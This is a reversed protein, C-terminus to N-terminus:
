NGLGLSGPTVPEPEVPATDIPAVAALRQLVVRALLGPVPDPLATGDRLAADLRRRPVFHVTPPPGADHPWSGLEVLARRYEARAAPGRPAPSCLAVVRRGDVGADILDGQTRVLGTLGSLGPRGVVVVVSSVAVTLRALANREEVDVSGGDRESEFDADIDAVVTGFAGRVSDLAAAVAPPRLAAWDTSRRLGLLLHYGREVVRFTGAQVARADPRATRHADVLEQLGPVLEQADHLAAQDARRCLDALVVPGAVAGARRPRGAAHDGRPPRAGALRRFRDLGTRGGADADRGAAAALGQALAIALTSAGTGGPGCVTILPARSATPRDGSGDRDPLDTPPVAGDAVPRATARLADLLQARALPSPLVAAAGLDRPRGPAADTEVFLVAVGCADLHAVLARDVQPLGADLLVASLARGSDVLSRLEEVSLCAVFEVPLAGSTAWSAVSRFWATRARALGAVVWRDTVM